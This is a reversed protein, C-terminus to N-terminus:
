HCARLARQVGGPTYRSGPPRGQCPPCCLVFPDACRGSTVEPWAGACVRGHRTDSRLYLSHADHRLKIIQWAHRRLAAALQPLERVGKVRRFSREADLMDAATWRLAM